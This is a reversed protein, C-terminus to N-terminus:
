KERTFFLSSVEPGSMQDYFSCAVAVAVAVAVVAAPLPPTPLPRSELQYNIPLHRLFPSIGPPCQCFILTTVTTYASVGLIDYGVRLIGACYVEVISYILFYPFIRKLFNLNGFKCKEKDGVEVITYLFSRSCFSEAALWGSASYVCLIVKGDLLHFPTLNVTTM